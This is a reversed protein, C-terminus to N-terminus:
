PCSRNCVRSGDACTAGVGTCRLTCKPNAPDCRLLCAAGGVCSVDRCDDAGRCDIGCASGDECAAACKVARTCDLSCAAGGACSLDCKKSAQCGLACTAQAACVQTCEQSEACDTECVSVSNCTAVCKKARYCDMQTCIGSCTPACTQDVCATGGDRPPSTVAADGADGAAGAADADGAADASSDAAEGDRPGNSDLDIVSSGDGAADASPAAADIPSLAGDPLIQSADNSPEGTGYGVLLCGPLVLLLAGLALGCRHWRGTEHHSKSV